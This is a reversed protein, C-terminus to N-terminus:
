RNDLKEPLPNLSVMVRILKAEIQGSDNPNGIITVFDGLKLDNIKINERLRNITTNGDVLIVKETSNRDKVVFEDTNIKIIEGVSGHGEIFQDMPLARWNGVFGMKPGGFNVQYNEAWHCSFKAKETGIKIGIGLTLLIIVFILLGVIIWKLTDTKIKITTFTKKTEEDM